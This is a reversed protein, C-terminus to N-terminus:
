MLMRSIMRVFSASSHAGSVSHTAITKGDLSWVIRGLSAAGADIAASYVGEQGVRPQKPGSVSVAPKAGPSVTVYLSDHRSAGSDDIVTLSVTYTGVSTPRFQTRSCTTCGPTITRGDPTTISWEYRKIQGDPDYAGDGNLLVTAGREVNQDLGADALPPENATSIPPVLSTTLLLILIGTVARNM